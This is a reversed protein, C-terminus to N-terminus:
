SIGHELLVHQAEEAESALVSIEYYNQAEAVNKYLPRVRVLIGERELHSVSRQQAEKGQAMQVVVWM